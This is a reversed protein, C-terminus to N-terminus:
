RQRWGRGRGGIGCTCASSRSMVRCCRSKNAKVHASAYLPIKRFTKVDTSTASKFFISIPRSFFFAKSKGLGDSYSDDEHGDEQPRCRAGGLRSFGVRDVLTSACAAFLENDLAVVDGGTEGNLADKIGSHLSQAMRWIRATPEVGVKNSLAVHHTAVFAMTVNKIGTQAKKQSESIKKQVAISVTADRQSRCGTTVRAQRRRPPATRTAATARSSTTQSSIQPASQLEVEVSTATIAAM